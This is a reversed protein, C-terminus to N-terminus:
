SELVNGYRDTEVDPGHEREAPSHEAQLHSAMRDKTIKNSPCFPCVYNPRGKWVTVDIQLGNIETTGAIEREEMEEIAEKALDSAKADDGYRELYDGPSIEYRDDWEEYASM